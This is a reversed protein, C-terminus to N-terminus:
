CTLRCVPFGAFQFVPLSALLIGPWSTFLGVMMFGNVASDFDIRLPPLKGKKMSSPNKIVAYGVSLIL